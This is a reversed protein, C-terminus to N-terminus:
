VELDMSTTVNHFKKRIGRVICDERAANVIFGTYFGIFETIM